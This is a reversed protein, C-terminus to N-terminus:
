MLVRTRLMGIDISSWWRGVLLMVQTGTRSKIISKLGAESGILTRAPRFRAVDVRSVVIYIFSFTPVM